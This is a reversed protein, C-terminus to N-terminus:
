MGNESHKGPLRRDLLRQIIATRIISSQMGQKFPDHKLCEEIAKDLLIRLKLTIYIAEPNSELKGMPREEKVLDGYSDVTLLDEIAEAVWKSKARTGYNDKILSLRVKNILEIHAKFTIKIKKENVSM